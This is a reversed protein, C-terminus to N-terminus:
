KNALKGGIAQEVVSLAVQSADKRPTPKKKAAPKKKARKAMGAVHWSRARTDVSIAPTM